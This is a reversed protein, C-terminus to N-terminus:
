ERRAGLAAMYIVFCEEGDLCLLENMQDDDFAAIACVGRGLAEGALYLNQCVHGADLHLYRYGREGYRWKMRRADASWIFCVQALGIFSQGLAGSVVRDVIDPSRNTEVLKHELAAYRYIGAPVGKVNRVLLHTELAHRAGASPVTRITALNKRVEKVGQTCWLLFSLEELSMEEEIYNRVSKREAVIRAFSMDRCRADDAKPLRIVPRGADYATELPPQPLGQQQESPNLNGYKTKEMFERGTNKMM